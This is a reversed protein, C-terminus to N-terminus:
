SAPATRPALDLERDGLARFRTGAALAGAYCAAVVLLLAQYGTVLALWELVGGCAAGLLNSAFAVDAARTDRFSHTFVLNALVIPAFAILSALLYRLWPPDMLLSSPPVAYGFALTVFLGAYLPRPDAIRLKATLVIAVLVSALVAFFVLANVLWTTGFLLSFTVLSRTELLLFAAGLLFFHPSFGGAGRGSRGGAVLAAAAAALLLGLLPVVYRDPLRRDRLYMFPWDDTSPEVGSSLVRYGGSDGPPPGGRLATVMPGAAFVAFNVEGGLSYSTLLPRLGFARELGHAIREVLWAQRYQNYLVFAGDPSLHDRASTFAEETFLFSELRLNATSSVLSLSDTQAFVILDYRRDTNRLFARGDDVYRRVRADDYPRDPHREVGISMIRPDIEVADVREAGRALAVATDTGTGAGVILVDRFTRGPFWRYVQEYLPEKIETAVRWMAQHPIGNVALFETDAVGRALSIRYYPSWVDAPRHMQVALALVGVMVVGGLVARRDIGDAITRLALLAAVVAFWLLPPTSLASLTAFAAIGALSGGIDIAYARLPPMSRLLPGLPLALVAMTAATAIFTLPLLVPDVEVQRVEGYGFFFEPDSLLRADFRARQVTGVVLLLFAGAPVPLRFGNRGLLIGVGIGLFSSILLFNNFFGVYVVNAPIWRILLLEVFLLVASTLFLRAASGSLFSM